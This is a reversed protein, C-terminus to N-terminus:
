YEYGEDGRDGAEPLDCFVERDLNLHKLSEISKQKDFEYKLEKENLPIPKEKSGKYDIIVGTMWVGHIAKPMGHTSTTPDISLDTTSSLDTPVSPYTNCWLKLTATGATITGSYIKISKRLIDYFCTGALNSFEATILAETEMPKRIDRLDIEHLLRWNTGDLAATVRKIRALIDTPFPYDRQTASAVLNATQPVLFYDEDAKLIDQALEEQRAEMYILIEADPFTTSNTRTKKRVYTAFKAPTM